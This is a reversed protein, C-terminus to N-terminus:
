SVTVNVYSTNGLAVENFALVIDSGALSGGHRAITIGLISFAPNKIDPLAQITAGWLSSIYVDAGIALSALYSAICSKINSGIVSSYGTLAKVSVAVDISIEAPRYFKIPTIVGYADTMNVTTNGATGSGPTKKLFIQQAVDSDAGGEVVMAISHGAVGNADIGSGTNEYPEARTVNEVSLVGATIGDLVTQSPASVSTSQRLKL